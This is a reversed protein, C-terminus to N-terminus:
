DRPSPSTYLLCIKSKIFSRYRLSNRTINVASVPYHRVAFELHKTEYLNDVVINYEAAAVSDQKEYIGFLLAYMNIKEPFHFGEFNSLAEVLRDKDPHGNNKLEELLETYDGSAFQMVQDSLNMLKKKDHLGTRRMM